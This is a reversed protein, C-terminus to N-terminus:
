KSLVYKVINMGNSYKRHLNLSITFKQALYFNTM